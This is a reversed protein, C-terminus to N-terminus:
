KIERILVQVMSLVDQLEYKNSHTELSLKNRLENMGHCVAVTNTSTYGKTSDLRELSVHNFPKVQLGFEHIMPKNTYYCTKTKLLKKFQAFTLKFEVGRNLCNSYKQQYCNMYAIDIDISTKKKHPREVVAEANLKNQLSVKTTKKINFGKQGADCYLQQLLTETLKVNKFEGCSLFTGIASNLQQQTNIGLTNLLM